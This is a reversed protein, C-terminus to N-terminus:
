DEKNGLESTLMSDPKTIMVRCQLWPKFWTKSTNEVLDIDSPNYEWSKCVEIKELEDMAAEFYERARGKNRMEIAEQLLCSRELITSVRLTKIASKNKNERYHYSLETGISKAWTYKGQKAPLEIIARLLPAFQRLYDVIWEGPQLKWRLPYENGNVDKLEDRALDVLVRVSRSATSAGFRKKNTKDDRLTIIKTGLPVKIHFNTLHHIAKVAEAIHEPKYGGKHHKKYGMVELIERVDIWVPSPRDQGKKWNDLSAATILRWVDATRPNLQSVAECMASIEVNADYYEVVHQNRPDTYRPPEGDISMEWPRPGRAARDVVQAPLMTLSLLSASNRFLSESPNTSLQLQAATKAPKNRTSTLGGSEFYAQFSPIQEGAVPACILQNGSILYMTKPLTDNSESERDYRHNFTALPCIIYGQKELENKVLLTSVSYRGAFAQWEEESLEQPADVPEHVAIEQFMEGLFEAVKRTARLCATQMDEHALPKLKYIKLYSLWSEWIERRVRKQEEDFRAEYEFYDLFEISLLFARAYAYSRGSVSRHATPSSEAM